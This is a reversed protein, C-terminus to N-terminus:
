TRLLFCIFSKINIKKRINIPTYRDGKNFIRAFYKAKKLSKFVSTQDKPRFNLNRGMMLDYLTQGLEIKIITEAVNSVELDEAPGAQVGTLFILSSLVLVATVASVLLKSKYSANM